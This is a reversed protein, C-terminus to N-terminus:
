DSENDFETNDIKNKIHKSSGLDVLHWRDFKQREEDYHVLCFYGQDTLIGFNDNLPMRKIRVARGFNEIRHSSKPSTFVETLNLSAIKEPMESSIDYASLVCDYNINELWNQHSKADQELEHLNYSSTECLALMTSQSQSLTLDQIKRTTADCLHIPFTFTVPAIPEKLFKYGALNLKHFFYVFKDEKLM